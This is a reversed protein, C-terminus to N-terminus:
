SPVKRELLFTQISQLTYRFEIKRKSNCVVCGGYSEWCDEHYVAYCSPCQAVISGIEIRNYCLPCIITVIKVDSTKDRLIVLRFKEVTIRLLNFFFYSCVVTPILLMLIVYLVHNPNLARLELYVAVPTLALPVFLFLFIKYKLNETLERLLAKLYDIMKEM